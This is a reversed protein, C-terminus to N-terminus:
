SLPRRPILDVITLLGPDAGLLTPIMNLVSGVTGWDGQVGPRIAAHVPPRGRVVFEDREDEAGVYAELILDIRRGGDADLRLTQRVGAVRGPEVKVFDTEVEGRAIVPEVPSSKVSLPRWGLAEALLYASQELGVHATIKGASIAERFEDPTMGAGIKRQFPGRRKSADVIRRVEVGDVRTCPLTLTAPLLDMMFGPNVGAGLVSVGAWRASDDLLRASAPDVIWPYALEECTSIVDSGFGVATILTDFVDRLRSSTTVIVVDPASEVLAVELDDEVELGLEEELGVIEGLDKGVKGPDVDVAAVLDIWPYDELIARVVMSGIAGVGVLAADIMGTVPRRRPHLYFVM